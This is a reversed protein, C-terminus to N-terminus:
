DNTSPYKCLLYWCSGYNKNWIEIWPSPPWDLNSKKLCRATVNTKIPNEQGPKEAGGNFALEIAFSPSERKSIYRAINEQSLKRNFM